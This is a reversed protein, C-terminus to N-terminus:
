REAEESAQVIIAALMRADAPRLWITLPEDLSEPEGPLLAKAVSLAVGRKPSCGRPLDYWRPEREAGAFVALEQGALAGKANVGPRMM